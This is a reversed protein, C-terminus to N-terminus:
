VLEVDTGAVSKIGDLITIPNSPTGNYNGLLMAVSTANTGIVAIRRIKSRNLPLLGNNKLLVISERAVQLALTQHEPSDNETFSSKAFVSVSAPPDFM